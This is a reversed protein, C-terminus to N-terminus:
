NQIARSFLHITDTSVPLAGEGSPTQGGPLLCTNVALAPLGGCQAEQGGNYGNM